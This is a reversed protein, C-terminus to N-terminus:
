SLEVGQGTGVEIGDEAGRGEGLKRGEGEKGQTRSWAGSETERGAVCEQGETGGGFVWM